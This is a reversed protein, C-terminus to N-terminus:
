IGLSALGDILQNMVVAMRPHETEFKIVASQLRNSISEVHEQDIESDVALLRQIDDSLNRLVDATEVDVQGGDALERHLTDLAQNLTQTDMM